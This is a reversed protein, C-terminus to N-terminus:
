TLRRDGSPNRRGDAPPQTGSRAMSASNPQRASGSAASTSPPHSPILVLAMVAGAAAIGAAVFVSTQFGHFFASSAADRLSTALGPNGSAALQATAGLATGVSREAGTAVDAPLGAPIESALRSAYLSAYLSGIVAIGLTGGTIRTADNIASGIGAKAEPADDCTHGLRRLLPLSQKRGDAIGWSRRAIESFDRRVPRGTRQSEELPAFLGKIGRLAGRQASGIWVGALHFRKALVEIAHKAFPAHNMREECQVTRYPALILRRGVMVM